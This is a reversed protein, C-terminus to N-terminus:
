VQSTREKWKKDNSSENTNNEDNKEQKIQV